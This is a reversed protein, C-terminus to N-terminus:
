YSNRDFKTIENLKQARNYKSLLLTDLLGQTYQIVLEIPCKSPFSSILTPM